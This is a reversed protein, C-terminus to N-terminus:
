GKLVSDAAVKDAIAAPFCDDTLQKYVKRYEVLVQKALEKPSIRPAEAVETTSFRSAKSCAESKRVMAGQEVALIDNHLVCTFSGKAVETCFRCRTHITSAGMLSHNCYDHTPVLYSLKSHLRKMTQWVECM